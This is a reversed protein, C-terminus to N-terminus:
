RQIKSFIEKIHDQVALRFSEGVEKCANDASALYGVNFETETKIARTKKGNKITSKITWKGTPNFLGGSDFDVFRVNLLYTKKTNKNKLNLKVLEKNIANQIYLSFSQDKENKIPGHGRCQIEYTSISNDDLKVKVDEKLDQLHISESVQYESTLTTCASGLTTCLFLLIIRKM